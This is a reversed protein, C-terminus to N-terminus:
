SPEGTPADTPGRPVAPWRLYQRWANPPVWEMCRVTEFQDHEGGRTVYVDEGDPFTRLYWRGIADCMRVAHQAPSGGLSQDKGYGLKFRAPLKWGKLPEGEGENVRRHEGLDADTLILVPSTAQTDAETVLECALKWGIREALSQDVGWLDFIRWPTIECRGRTASIREVRMRVFALVSRHSWNPCPTADVAIVTDFDALVMAANAGAPVHDNDLPIASLVRTRRNGAQDFGRPQEITLMVERMAVKRGASDFAHLEGTNEDYNLWGSEEDTDLKFIVSRIRKDRDSM